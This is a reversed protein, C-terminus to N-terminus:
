IQARLADVLKVGASTGLRTVGADIFALADELERIGGAAKVQVADGVVSKMLKVDELTAGGSGFGTSTKIFDPRVKKAITAAQRKEDDTLYCNEFIVKSLAGQERCVGVIQRMEDELYSLNGAKLETINIVYDIEDAGNAIARQSEAVKDEITVQGLPFGIAAGVHVGSGELQKKCQAVPYPNIAVMAFGYERAEDCLKTFQEKTADAKLQTHDIMGALQEPTVTM